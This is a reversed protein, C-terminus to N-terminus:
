LSEQFYVKSSEDSLDAYLKSSYPSGWLITGYSM